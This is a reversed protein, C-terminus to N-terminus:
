EIDQIPPIGLYGSRGVNTLIESSFRPFMGAFKGDVM